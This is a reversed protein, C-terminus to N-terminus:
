PQKGVPVIDDRQTLRIGEGGMSRLIEKLGDTAQIELDLLACTKLGSALPDATYCEDGTSDRILPFDCGKLGARVPRLRDLWLIGDETRDPTTGSNDAVAIKGTPLHKYFKHSDKHRCILEWTKSMQTM